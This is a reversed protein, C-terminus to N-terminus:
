AGRAAIVEAGWGEAQSPIFRDQRIASQAGIIGAGQAIVRDVDAGGPGVAVVIQSDGGFGIASELRSIVDLPNAQNLDLVAGALGDHGTFLVHGEVLETVAAPITGGVVPLVAIAGAAGSANAIGNGAGDVIGVPAPAAVVCVNALKDKDIAM